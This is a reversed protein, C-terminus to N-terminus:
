KCCYSKNDKELIRQSLVFILFLNSRVCIQTLSLNGSGKIQELIFENINILSVNPSNCATKKMFLTILNKLIFIM